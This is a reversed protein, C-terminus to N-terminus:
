AHAESRRPGTKPADMANRNATDLAVTSALWQTSESGGKRAKVDDVGIGLDFRKAPPAAPTTLTFAWTTTKGPAFTMDVGTTRELAVDAAPDASGDVARVVKWQGASVDWGTMVAHMPKDTLNFGTISKLTRLDANDFVSPSGERGGTECWLAHARLMEDYPLETVDKGVPNDTLVGTMDTEIFGPAVVNATISRSGLERAISRAMGVLGAKSAAYNVQGGSGSLGVVSGVLIIRGKKLRLM